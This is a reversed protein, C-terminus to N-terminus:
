VGGVWLMVCMETAVPTQFPHPLRHLSDLSPRRSDDGGDWSLGSSRLVWPFPLQSAQCTIASWGHM